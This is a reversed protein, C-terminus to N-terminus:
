ISEALCDCELAEFYDHNAIFVLSVVM